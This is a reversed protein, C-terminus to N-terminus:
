AGDGCQDHYLKENSTSLTCFSVLAALYPVLGKVAVDLACFPAHPHLSQYGYVTLQNREFQDDDLNESVEM